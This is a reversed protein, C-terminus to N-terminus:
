SGRVNLVFGLFVLLAVGATAMGVAMSLIIGILAAGKFGSYFVWGNYSFLFLLGVMLPIYTGNNEGLMPLVWLYGGILACLILVSAALIRSFSIAGLMMCLENM